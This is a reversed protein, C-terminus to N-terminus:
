DFDHFKRSGLNRWLRPEIENSVFHVSGDMRMSSVGGSHHSSARYSGMGSGTLGGLDCDWIDANPPVAHNYQSFSYGGYVWSHGAQEFYDAPAAPASQCLSVIEHSSLSTGVIVNMRTRWSDTAKTPRNNPRSRRKESVGVCHSLGKEFDAPTLGFQAPFAGDGARDGDVGTLPHAYCSSGTNARFSFGFPVGDSPCQGIPIPTLGLPPYQYWFHTSTVLYDDDLADRAVDDLELFPTLQVFYSISNGFRMPDIRTPDDGQALRMRRVLEASIRPLGEPFRRYADYHNHMAIGIQSLRMACTARRASERAAMLAPLVIALVLGIISISVLLEMLTFGRSKSHQHWTEPKLSPNTLM